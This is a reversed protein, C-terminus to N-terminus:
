DKHISIAEHEDRVAVAKGVQTNKLVYWYNYKAAFCRYL